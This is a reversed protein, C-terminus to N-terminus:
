TRAALGPPGQTIRIQEAENALQAQVLSGIAGADVPLLRRMM